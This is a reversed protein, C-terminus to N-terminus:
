LPTASQLYKNSFSSGQPVETEYFVGSVSSIPFVGNDNAPFLFDFVSTRPLVKIFKAFLLLPQAFGFCRGACWTKGAQGIKVWVVSM